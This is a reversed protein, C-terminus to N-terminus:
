RTYVITKDYAEIAIDRNERGFLGEICDILINFDCWQTTKAFCALMASNPINRNVKKLTIGTADVLGVKQYSKPLNLDELKKTTNISLFGNDRFGDFVPVIDILTDDFILISDPEYVQSKTRIYNKEDLRIFGFVPSGKREVGFYPIFHAYKGEIVLSKVLIQSGKVVGQGGRGHLRIEKM